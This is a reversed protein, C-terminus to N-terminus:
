HEQLFMWVLPCYNFQFKIFAKMIFKRKEIPMYSAVRGMANLKRSVKNCLNTVHREFNLDSDITVGLLKEYQSNTITTGGITINEDNKSSTLFNCKDIHTPSCYFYSYFLLSAILIYKLRTDRKHLLILYCFFTSFFFLCM